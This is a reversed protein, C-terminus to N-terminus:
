NLIKREPWAELVTKEYLDRFGKDDDKTILSYILSSNFYLFMTYSPWATCHRITVMTPQGMRGSMPITTFDIMCPYRILIVKRDIDFGEDAEGMITGLQTKILILM